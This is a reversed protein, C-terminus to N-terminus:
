RKEVGAISMAVEAYTKAGPEGQVVLVTGRKAIEDAIQQPGGGLLMTVIEGDPFVCRVGLRTPLGDSTVVRNRNVIVTVATPHIVFPSTRIEIIVDGNKQIAGHWDTAALAM